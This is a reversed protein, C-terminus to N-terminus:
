SQPLRVASEDWLLGVSGTSYVKNSMAVQGNLWEESMVIKGWTPKTHYTITRDWGRRYLFLGSEAVIRGETYMAPEVRHQGVSELMLEDIWFTDVNPKYRGTFRAAATFSARERESFSVETSPTGARSDQIEHLDFSAHLYLPATVALIVFLIAPFLSRVSRSRSSDVLRMAGIGVPFSFFFAFPLRIRALGAVSIPSQFILISSLCGVALFPVTHRFEGARELIAVLGLAFTAMLLILFISSISALTSLAEAVTPDPLSVGFTVVSSGTAKSTPSGLTLERILRNTAMTLNFIFYESQVTWYVVAMMWGACLPLYRPTVFQRFTRDSGFGASFVLAVGGLVVLIPTFIVFSLHHTFVVTAIYIFCIATWTRHDTGDPEISRYAAFVAFLLLVVGLSQPFFYTTHYIIPYLVSAGFVIFLPTRRDPLLYTAFLYVVPLAGLVYILIGLGLVADYVSLDTIASTTGIFLHLGPFDSYRHVPGAMAATTGRSLLRRINITHFLLDGGGFYLGSNLYKTAPSVSFLALLQPFLRRPAREGRLQVLVLSYGIPLFALMAVGRNRSLVATGVALATMIYVAKGAWRLRDAERREGDDNLDSQRGDAEPAVYYVLAGVLLGIVVYLGKIAVTPGFEYGVAVVTAVAALIGFPFLLRRLWTLETGRM